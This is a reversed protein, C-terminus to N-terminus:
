HWVDSEAATRAALLKEDSLAGDHKEKKIGAPQWIANEDGMTWKHEETFGRNTISM